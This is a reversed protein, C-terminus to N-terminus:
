DAKEYPYAEAEVSEKHGECCDFTAQIYRYALGEVPQKWWVPTGKNANISLIGAGTECPGEGYVEGKKWGAKELDGTGEKKAGPPYEKCYFGVSGFAIHTGCVGPDFPAFGQDVFIGTGKAPKAVKLKKAHEVAEFFAFTPQAISLKKPTLWLERGEKPCAKCKTTLNCFVELRQVMYGDCPAEQDLEFKWLIRVQGKCMKGKKLQRLVPKITLTGTPDSYNIPRNAAYCYLNPGAFFHVPDASLFRGLNPDVQRARLSYQKVDPVWCYGLKGIYRYNNSQSESSFQSVGFARYVYTNLLIETNDTIRDTSGMGDFHYTSSASGRRQSVLDGYLAPGLTYTVQTVNNQDAEQLINEADWTFNVTGTSDQKQVRKSDGDYQFTNPVGAALAVRTLMNEFDWTYTTRTGAPVTVVQQNGAKDFVYTTRGTNDQGTLLENAV